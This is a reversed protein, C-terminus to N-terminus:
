ACVYQKKSEKISDFGSLSMKESGRLIGTSLYECPQRWVPADLRVRVTDRAIVDAVPTFSIEPVYGMALALETLKSLSYNYDGSLLQTVYGKSVGLHQALGTRNMGNATMFEEACNYLGIQTKAIWYEPSSLLEDRKM